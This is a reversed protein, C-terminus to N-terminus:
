LQIQEYERIAQLLNELKAKCAQLEDVPKTLAQCCQEIIVGLAAYKQDKWGDSGAQQYHRRLSSARHDLEQIVSNCIGIGSSVAASEVSVNSAM